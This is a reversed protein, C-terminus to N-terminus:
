AEQLGARREDGDTENTLGFMKLIGTRKFSPSLVFSFQNPRAVEEAALRPRVGIGSKGDFRVGCVDPVCGYFEEPDWAADQMVRGSNNM